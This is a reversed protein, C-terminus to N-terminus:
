FFGFVELLELLLLLGFVGWGILLGCVGFGFLVM